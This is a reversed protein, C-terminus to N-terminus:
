HAAEQTEILRADHIYDFRCLTMFEYINYTGEFVYGLFSLMVPRCAHMCAHTIHGVLMDHANNLSYIGM